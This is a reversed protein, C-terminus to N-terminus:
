RPQEGSRQPSGLSFVAPVVPKTAYTRAASSVTLVFRPPRGEHGQAAEAFRQARQLETMFKASSGPAVEHPVESGGIPPDIPLLSTGGPDARIAWGTVHFPATGANAVEVGVVFRDSSLKAAADALASRVDTGAENTVLGDSTLLGVIPTLRPRARRRLLRVVQWALSAAALVTAVVGLVFAAITM